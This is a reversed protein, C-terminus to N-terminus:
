QSSRLSAAIKFNYAHCGTAFCPLVSHSTFWIVCPLFSDMYYSVRPLSRRRTNNRSM